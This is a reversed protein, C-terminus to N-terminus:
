PERRFANHLPSTRRTAAALLMAALALRAVDVAGLAGDASLPNIDRRPCAGRLLRARREFAVTRAHRFKLDCRFAVMKEQVWRRVEHSMFEFAM